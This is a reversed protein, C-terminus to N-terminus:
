KNIKWGLKEMSKKEVCVITSNQWYLISNLCLEIGNWLQATKRALFCFINLYYQNIRCVSSIHFFFFFFFIMWPTTNSM